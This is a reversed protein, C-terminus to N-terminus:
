IYSASTNSKNEPLPAIPISAILLPAFFATKHSLELAAILIM